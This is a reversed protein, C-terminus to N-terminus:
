KRLCLLFVAFTHGKQIEVNALKAQVLVLQQLELAVKCFDKFIEAARNRELLLIVRKYNDLLL